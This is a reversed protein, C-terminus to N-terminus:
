DPVPPLPWEGRRVAIAELEPLALHDKLRNAFRKARILHPLALTPVDVGFAPVLEAMALCASYDGIPEVRHLLDIDGQRTRLTLTPTTRLTRADMFFPLGPEWGRPYAGWSALLATLPATNDPATDYCLDLDDTQRASGHFRAAVGGVVVVRLRAEVVAALMSLLSM